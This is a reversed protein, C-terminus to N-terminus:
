QYVAAPSSVLPQQTCGAPNTTLGLTFTHGATMLASLAGSDVFQASAQNVTLNSVNTSSTVDRLSVVANTSCGSPNTTVIFPLRIWAKVLGFLVGHTGYQICEEGEPGIVKHVVFPDVALEGSPGFLM